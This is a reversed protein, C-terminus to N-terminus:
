TIHNTNSFGSFAHYMTLSKGSLVRSVTLDVFVISATLCSPELFLFLPWCCFLDLDLEECQCGGPEQPLQPNCVGEWFTCLKCSPTNCTHCLLVNQSRKTMGSRFRSRADLEDACFPLPLGCCCWDHCLAWSTSSWGCKWNSEILMTDFLCLCHIEVYWTQHFRLCLDYKSLNVHQNEM